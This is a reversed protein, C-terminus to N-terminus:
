NLFAESCSAVASYGSTMGDTERLEAVTAAPDTRVVANPCDEQKLSRSIVYTQIGPMVDGGQARTAEYTKRGLLITDFSSMLAAFDIDPDIVIWDQEGNPGAIFGDVSVAVSFRIRRM